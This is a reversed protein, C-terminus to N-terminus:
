KFLKFSYQINKFRSEKYFQLLNNIFGINNLIKIFNSQSSLSQVINLTIIIQDEHGRRIINAMIDCFNSEILTKKVIKNNYAIVLLTRAATLCLENIQINYLELICGVLQFLQEKIFKLDQPDTVSNSLSCIHQLIGIKINVSIDLQQSSLLHKLITIYLNIHGLKCLLNVIYGQLVYKKLLHKNFNWSKPAM